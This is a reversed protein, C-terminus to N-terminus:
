KFVEKIRDRLNEEYVVGIQRDVEHGDKLFVLTPISRVEFGSAAKQNSDVNVKFFNVNKFDKSIKEFIPKIMQCPGCWDAYFDIIAKGTRTKQEFENEELEVVM